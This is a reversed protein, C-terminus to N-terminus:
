ITLISNMSLAFDEIRARSIFAQLLINAKGYSTDPTGKIQCVCYDPHSLAKLEMLEEDRSKINAFEDAQSIM